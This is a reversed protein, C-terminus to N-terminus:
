RFMKIIGSNCEAFVRFAKTMSEAPRAHPGPIIPPSIGVHGLSTREIM